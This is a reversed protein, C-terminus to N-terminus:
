GVMSHGQGSMWAARPAQVRGTEFLRYMWDPTKILSVRHTYPIVDALFHYIHGVFIGIMEQIPDGLGLIALVLLVFPFQWAVIQIGFYFNVIAHPQRRSWVYLASFVIAGGVFYLSGWFFAIVLIVLGNFLLFFCYDATARAGGSFSVQELRGVYQTLLVMQIIFPIGFTGFFIFCTVLRWIQFKYFVADFDIYLWRPNIFGLTAGVTTAMAIAFYWRTVPLM